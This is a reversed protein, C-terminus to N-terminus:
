ARVMGPQRDGILSFIKRTTVGLLLDWETDKTLKHLTLDDLPDRMTRLRGSSDQVTVLVSDGSAHHVAVVTQLAALAIDRSPFGLKAGDPDTLTWIQGLSFVGYRFLNM